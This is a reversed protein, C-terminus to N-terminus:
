KTPQLKDETKMEAAIFPADIAAVDAAAIKSTIAAKEEPTEATDIRDLNRQIARWFAVQDAAYARQKEVPLQQFEKMNIM